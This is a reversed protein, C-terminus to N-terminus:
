RGFEIAISKVDSGDSFLHINDIYITFAHGSFIKELAEERVIYNVPIYKSFTEESNEGTVLLNFYKVKSVGDNCYFHMAGFIANLLAPKSEAPISYRIRWTTDGTPGIFAETAGPPQAFQMDGIKLSCNDESLAVLFFCTLLTFLGLKM